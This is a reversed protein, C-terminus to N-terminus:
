LRFFWRASSAGNGPGTLRATSGSLAELRVARSGPASRECARATPMAAWHKWAKPWGTSPKLFRDIIPGTARCDGRSDRRCRGTPSSSRTASTGALSRLIVFSSLPSRGSRWTPGSTTTAPRFHMGCRMALRSRIAPRGSSSGRKMISSPRRSARPHVLEFDDGGIRTLGIPGPRTASRGAAARRAIAAGAPVAPAARRGRATEGATASGSRKRRGARDAMEDLEGLHMDRTADGNFRGAPGGAVVVSQNAPQRLM